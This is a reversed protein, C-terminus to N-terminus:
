QNKLDNSIGTNSADFLIGIYKKRLKETRYLKDKPYYRDGKEDEEGNFRRFFQNVQKTEAYLRSEDEKDLLQAYGQSVLLLGVLIVCLRILRM